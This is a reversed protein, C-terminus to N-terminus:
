TKEKLQADRQAVAMKVGELHALCVLDVVRGADCAWEYDDAQWDGDEIKRNVYALWGDKSEAARAAEKMDEDDLKPLECEKIQDELQAIAARRDWDPYGRGKESAMCKGAFYVINCDAIFKWSTEGDGCYWQYVAEYLDGYVTLTGHKKHLMYHVCYTSSGSKNRWRLTEIPCGPYTQFLAEHDRFWLRVSEVRLAESM